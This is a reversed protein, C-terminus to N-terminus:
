SSRGPPFRERKLWEQFTVGVLEGVAWLEYVPYLEDYEAASIPIVGEPTEAM